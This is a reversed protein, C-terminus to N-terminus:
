CPRGIICFSANHLWGPVCCTCTGYACWVASVCVCWWASRMCLAYLVMCLGVGVVGCQRVAMCVKDVVHVDVGKDILFECM